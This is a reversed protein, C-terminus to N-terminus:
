GKDDSGQVMRLIFISSDVRMLTVSLNSAVIFVISIYQWLHDRYETAPVQPFKGDTM